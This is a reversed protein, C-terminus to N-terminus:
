ANYIDANGHSDSGFIPGLVGASIVGLGALRDARGFRTWGKFGAGDDDEEGTTESALADNEQLV